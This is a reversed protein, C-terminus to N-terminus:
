NFVELAISHFQSDINANFPAFKETSLLLNVLPVAGHSSDDLYNLVTSKSFHAPVKGQKQFLNFFFKKQAMFQDIKKKRLFKTACFNQNNVDFKQMSFAMSTM